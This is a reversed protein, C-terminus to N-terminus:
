FVTKLKSIVKNKFLYFSHYKVFNYWTHKIDKPNDFYDDYNVKKSITNKNSAVCFINGYCM